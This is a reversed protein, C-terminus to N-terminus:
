GTFRLSEVINRRAASVAPVLAAVVGVVLAVGLVVLLQEWRPTIAEFFGGFERVSGIILFSLGAGLVGGILALLVSEGIVLRLIEGPTYGLTRLIALERTRERVSMAVTNASVLLITFTVAACIVMLYLRVNGLFNVFAVSFQQETETKTPSPSNAFMADITQAVQEAREPRDIIILFTGVVDRAAQGASEGRAFSESLYERNFLMFRETNPADMIGVLDFELTLNFIESTLAVRQGVQWNMREALARTVVAGTRQRIFAQRQDDPLTLDPRVVFIQEPEVGFQAFFNRPDRNDKYIGGFWQWASVGEVGPVQAIRQRYAIPLSQTLSVKHRVILRRAESPSSQQPLFFGLYLAVMVGVITLSVAVSGLTLLSRRRNRLVNQVVLPLLNLM